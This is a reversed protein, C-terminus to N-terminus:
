LLHELGYVLQNRKVVEKIGLNV